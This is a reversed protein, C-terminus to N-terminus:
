KVNSLFKTDNSITAPFFFLQGYFNKILDSIKNKLAFPLHSKMILLKNYVSAVNPPM